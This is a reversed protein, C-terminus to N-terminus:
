GPHYRSLDFLATLHPLTIWNAEQRETLLLKCGGPLTAPSLSGLWRGSTM